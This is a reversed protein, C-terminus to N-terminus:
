CKNCWWSWMVRYISNSVDFYTRDTAFKTYKWETYWQKETVKLIKQIQRCGYRSDRRKEIHRNMVGSNLLFIICLQKILALFSTLIKWFCLKNDAAGHFSKLLNWKQFHKCSNLSVQWDTVNMTNTLECWLHFCVRFRTQKWRQHSNVRANNHWLM